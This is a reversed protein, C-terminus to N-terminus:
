ETKGYCDFILQENPFVAIDSTYHRPLWRYRRYYVVQDWMVDGEPTAGWTFGGEIRGANRDCQFVAPRIEGTQDFQRIAMLRAIALPFGRLQGRLDESKVM